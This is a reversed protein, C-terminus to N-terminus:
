LFFGGHGPYHAETTCHSVFTIPGPCDLSTLISSTQSSRQVEVGPTTPFRQHTSLLSYPSRAESKPPLPATPSYLLFPRLCVMWRECPFGCSTTLLAAVMTLCHSLNQQAYRVLRGTSTPLPLPTSLSPNLNPAQLILHISVGYESITFFLSKKKKKPM